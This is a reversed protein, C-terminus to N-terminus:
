IQHNPKINTISLKLEKFSSQSNLLKRNKKKRKKRKKTKKETQKNQKIHELQVIKDSKTLNLTNKEGNNHM